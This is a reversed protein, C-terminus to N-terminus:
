ITVKENISWLCKKNQFITTLRIKLSTCLFLPTSTSTSTFSILVFQKNFLLCQTWVQILKELEVFKWRTDFTTQKSFQVCVSLFKKQSNLNSKQPFFFRNRATKQKIIIAFTVIKSSFIKSDNEGFLQDFKLDSM